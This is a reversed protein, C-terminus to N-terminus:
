SANLGGQRKMKNEFLQQKNLYVALKIVGSLGEKEANMLLTTLEDGFITQMREWYEAEKQTAILLYASRRKAGFQKYQSWTPLIGATYCEKAEALYNQAEPDTAISYEPQETTTDLNKPKKKLWNIIGM